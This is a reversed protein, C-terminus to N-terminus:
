QQASEVIFVIRERLPPHSSFKEHEENEIIYSFFLRANQNGKLYLYLDELEEEELYNNRIKNDFVTWNIIHYKKLINAKCTPNAERYKHAYESGIGKFKRSRKVFYEDIVREVYPSIETENKLDIPLTKELIANMEQVGEPGIKFEKRVYEIRKWIEQILHGRHYTKILANVTPAVGAIEAAAHDALYELCWRYSNTHFVALMLFQIFPNVQPYYSKLHALEHCLVAKLEDENLIDFMSSLVHIEKSKTFFWFGERWAFADPYKSDYVVLQSPIPMTMKECCEAIWRSVTNFDYKGLRYVVQSPSLGLPYSTQHFGGYRLFLILKILKRGLFKLTVLTILLVLSLRLSALSVLIVFIVFGITIKVLLDITHYSKLQRTVSAYSDPNYYCAKMM